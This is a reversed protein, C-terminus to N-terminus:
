AEGRDLAALEEDAIWSALELVEPGGVTVGVPDPSATPPGPMDAPLPFLAGSDLRWWRVAAVM